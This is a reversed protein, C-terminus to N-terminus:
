VFNKHLTLSMKLMKTVVMTSNAVCLSRKNGLLLTAKDLRLFM